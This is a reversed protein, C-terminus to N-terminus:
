CFFPTPRPKRTGSGINRGRSCGLLDGKNARSSARSWGLCWPSSFLICAPSRDAQLPRGAQGPSMCQSPPRPGRPSRVSADARGHLWGSFGCLDGSTLKWLPFFSHQCHDRLPKRWTGHSQREGCVQSRTHPCLALRAPTEALSVRM